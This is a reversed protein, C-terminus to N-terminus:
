RTSTRRKRRGRSAAISGTLLEIVFFFFNIALVSWPLHKQELHEQLPLREANDTQLRKGGLNLDLLPGEIRDLEGTHFVNLRRIPIDFQLHNVEAFQELRMRVRTEESPCDMQAIKYATKQM